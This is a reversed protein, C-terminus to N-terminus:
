LVELINNLDEKTFNYKKNCFHCVIELDNNDEAIIKLIEEKGLSMIGESFREHNCSCKYSLDMTELIEANEDNALIKLIDVEDKGSILLDGLSSISKIQKELIDLSEEKCGPMAQAIFAGAKTVNGNEDLCVTVLCSSPIQESKTFYYAFNTALDPYVIESSSTFIDRIKLNKTVYMFGNQGLAMATEVKGDNRIFNVHPNEVFGRVEGKANTTTVIGGIPGGGDIRITLEQDGKYMAGMIISLSLAQGLLITATPYTNHIKRAEEVLNTTIAGYIRVTGNYAYIKTLRDKM